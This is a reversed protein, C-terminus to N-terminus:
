AAQRSDFVRAPINPLLARLTEIFLEVRLNVFQDLADDPLHDRRAWEVIQVPVLHGQLVARFEGSDLGAVYEIPNKDSIRINTLQTIYAINMLSNVDVQNKGPHVKIFNSPFIHHLNPKDTLRYYTDSVVDRYPSDWDRPKRSSLLSLIARSLRGKTSYSARRLADKDLTFESFISEPNDSTLAALHAQLQTTNSLLDGSHFATYWFYRKLFEYDPRQAKLFYSAITMYFYRFPVLSPGKLHLIQDLFDFTKITADTFKPWIREISDTKLATLYRDTINYIGAEPQDRGILTALMQLLTQDNIEAYQAHSPISARLDDICERLYFEGVNNASNAPRYTKAVVIDFTDLPQGERNIREFIQCVEAIQIGRLVIFSIRYNSLVSQAHRLAKRVPDDWSSHEGKHLAEELQGYRRAVDLLKVIEGRAYRQAKGRNALLEGGRDDIESWFLFRRRWDDDDDTIEVTLDLYLTPDFETRGEIRGGHLSTFLATTRQQGDLLYQQESHDFSKDIPFGGIERHKQLKTDTRWVLISGIPYFRFVSDWLRKVKDEDWVVDRQFTPIQYKSNKLDELYTTIAADSPKIRDALDIM